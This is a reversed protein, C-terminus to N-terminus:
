ITRVIDAGIYAIEGNWFKAISESYALSLPRLHRTFEKPDRSTDQWSFLIDELLGVVAFESVYKDGDSIMQEIANGLAPFAAMQESGHITLLHRVYNAAVIYNLEADDADQRDFENQFSPVAKLLLPWIQSKDIMTAM